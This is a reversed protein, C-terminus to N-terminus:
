VKSLVYPLFRKDGDLTPDYANGLLVPRIPLQQVFTDLANAFTTM